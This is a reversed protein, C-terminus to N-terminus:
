VATLCRLIRACFDSVKRFPEKWLPSFFFFFFGRTPRHTSVCVYYRAVKNGGSALGEESLLLPQTLNATLKDLLQPSLSCLLYTICPKRCQKRTCSLFSTIAYAGTTLEKVNRRKILLFFFFCKLIKLTRVLLLVFVLLLNKKKAWSFCFLVGFLFVFSCCCFFGGLVM